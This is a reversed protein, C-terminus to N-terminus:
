SHAMSDVQSNHLWHLSDDQSDLKVPGQQRSRGYHTEQPTAQDLGLRGSEPMCVQDFYMVPNAETIACM